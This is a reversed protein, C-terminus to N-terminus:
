LLIESFLIGTMYAVIIAIAFSIVNRIIGVKVGLCQREIPFTLVGVMMLTTTFASLAMYSAGEKLLIGSLPFAIFGPMVAVSGMLSALWVSLHKNSGGLIETITEEPLFYLAVSVLVLMLLFAPLINVFKKLAIKVAIRTKDRSKIFSLLLLIASIIYLYLM